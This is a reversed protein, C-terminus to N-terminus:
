NNTTTNASKVEIVRAAGFQSAVIAMAESHSIEQELCLMPSTSVKDGTRITILWNKTM